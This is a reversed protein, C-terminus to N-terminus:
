NAMATPPKRGEHRQGPEPCGRLRSQVKKMRPTGNYGARSHRDAAPEAGEGGAGHLGEALAVGAREMCSQAEQIASVYRVREVHLFSGEGKKWRTSELAFGRSLEELRKMSAKLDQLQVTAEEPRR